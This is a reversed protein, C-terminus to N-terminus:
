INESLSSAIIEVVLKYIKAKINTHIPISLDVISKLIQSNIIAFKPIPNCIQNCEIHEYNKTTNLQESDNQQLFHM